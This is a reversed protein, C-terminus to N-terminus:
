LSEKFFYDKPESGLNQLAKVPVTLRVSRSKLAIRVEASGDVIREVVGCLMREFGMLVRVSSGAEIGKSWAESAERCREILDQVFSDEVPIPKGDAGALPGQLGFVNGLEGISERTRIWFHPSILGVGEAGRSKVPYLLQFDRVHRVLWRTLNLAVEEAKSEADTDLDLAYWPLGELSKVRGSQILM